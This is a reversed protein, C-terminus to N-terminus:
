FPTTLIFTSVPVNKIWGDRKRVNVPNYVSLPCVEDSDPYTALQCGHGLDWQDYSRRCNLVEDELLLLIEHRLDAVRVALVLGVLLHTRVSDLRGTRLFSIGMVTSRDEHRPGPPRFSARRGHSPLKYLSPCRQYTVDTSRDNM